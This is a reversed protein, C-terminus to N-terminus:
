DVSQLWPLALDEKGAELAFELVLDFDRLEGSVDRLVRRVVVSLLRKGHRDDVHRLVKDPGVIDIGENGRALKARAQLYHQM